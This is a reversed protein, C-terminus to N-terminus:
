MKYYLNVVRMVIMSVIAIFVTMAPCGTDRDDSKEVTSVTNEDTSVINEVTSVTNEVTSVINEDTSVTNEDSSNNDEICEEFNYNGNDIQELMKKICIPSNLVYWMLNVAQGHKKKIDNEFQRLEEEERSIIDSKHGNLIFSIQEVFSDYISNNTVSDIMTSIRYVDNNFRFIISMNGTHDTFQNTNFDSIENDFVIRIGYKEELNNYHIIALLKEPDTSIYEYFDVSLKIKALTDIEEQVDDKLLTNYYKRFLIEQEM